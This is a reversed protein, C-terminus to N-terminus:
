YPLGELFQDVDSKSEPAIELIKLAEQRAKDYEGLEKYTSALSAHYQINNNIAILKQYIEVLNEYDKLDAYIKALQLLSVENDISYSKQSAKQIDEQANENEKLYIESLGKLWWCDGLTPNLDICVQAKEKAEQFDGTIIKTMVWGIFVEQRKPSLEYAKQFYSNAEDKLDQKGAEILINTYNGLSLWNRTYYPMIKINEKLVEVAKQTFATTMEPKEKICEGIVEVYKLHLYNDLYTKNPLINEMKTLANECEEKGSLYIALNIEKNIRLPKLNFSWIFWILLIFLIILIPWRWKLIDTYIRKILIFRRTEKSPETNTQNSLLHLSYGILLFSILYTSFTDFSFFNATLYALFTAQIGHAAIQISGHEYGYLDTRKLKQLQFFLVGFLSLYIILAPIGATVGIDFIFNHARDWWHIYDTIKPLAPDYYKDFGISFNDPGYGLIPRNEMAKLSIKWTSIRSEGANSGNFLLLIREINSQILMDRNEYIEPHIKLFYLGFVGLILLILASIKFLFLRKPYFFIFWILGAILGLFVARSQTIVIAVFIFLLLSLFYFLKKGLNKEKIGFSFSLFCFFLLYIGLCDPNGLTSPPRNGPILFNAFFGFQQLIAILSVLVGIIISFGWIKQWNSKKLILFVLIAFIIYFAFNLFGGARYPSGWFSFRIDLSFITALFYIGLLVILLWLPLGYRRLDTKDTNIRPKNDKNILKQFIFLFLLISLIIRFVITKGWDPLSFWPPLNLLPLALIIFVGILFSLYFINRLKKEELTEM